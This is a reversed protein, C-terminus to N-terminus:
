SESGLAAYLSPLFTALHSMEQSCHVLLAAAEAAGPRMLWGAASAAMDGVIGGRRASAHEGGIWFRSRMEAGGDLASVYHLLYGFDFPMNAFGVRACVATARTADTLLREDLGLECPPLFRIYYRGLTSGVYEDVCSTQGVYRERGTTGPVVPTAWEAHVHARPHWLKYRQPEDSHWGFWWDVMAPVVGPMITHIAIHLAGGTALCYGNELVREPSELARGAEGLPPLLPEAVPGHAIAEHAHAPLAAMQPNWFRAYPKGDLEGPLMGLRRRDASKPTTM